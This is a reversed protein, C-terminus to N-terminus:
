TTRRRRLIALLLMAVGVACSGEEPEPITSLFLSHDDSFADIWQGGNAALFSDVSYIIERTGAPLATWSSYERWTTSQLNPSAFGGLTQSADNRTHERNWGEREM